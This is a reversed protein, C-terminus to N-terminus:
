ELMEGDTVLIDELSQLQGEYEKITDKLNCKSQLLKITSQYKETKRELEEKLRMYETNVKEKQESVYKVKLSYAVAKPNVESNDSMRCLIQNNNCQEELNDLEKIKSLVDHQLIIDGLKTSVEKNLNKEMENATEMFKDKDLKYVPKFSTALANAFRQENFLSQIYEQTAKKLAEFRQSTYNEESKTSSEEM